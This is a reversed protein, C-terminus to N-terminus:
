ADAWNNRARASKRRRRARCLQRARCVAAAGRARRSCNSGDALAALEVAESIAAAARRRAHRLSCGTHTSQLPATTESATLKGNRVGIAWAIRARAVKAPSGRSSALTARNLSESRRLRALSLQSPEAMSSAPPPSSRCARGAADGSGPSRRVCPASAHRWPLNPEARVGTPALRAVPRYGM